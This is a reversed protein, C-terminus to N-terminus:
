ARECEPPAPWRTPRRVQMSGARPGARGARSRDPRAGGARAQAVLRGRPSRAKVATISVAQYSPGTGHTHQWFWLLKATREKEVLPKWGSQIAEEFDGMRGGAVEHVEHLFIM